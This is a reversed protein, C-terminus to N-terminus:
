IVGSVLPSPVTTSADVHFTFNPNFNPNLAQSHYGRPNSLVRCQGVHYDNSSHIHGHCWHTINPHDLIFQELDTAYAGELRSAYHDWISKFSPAHHTMMVVPGRLTPLVSKFWDMTHQHRHLSAEPTNNMVCQYDNMSIGATHMMLADGNMFDSWLTAGVFHVGEYVESSNHLLTIEEPIERRIIDVYTKIDGNYAEHNGLIYFVKNYGVVCQNFFKLYKSREIPDEILESAVCIDGCLLLVDGTGPNFGGFELHLDSLLTINM